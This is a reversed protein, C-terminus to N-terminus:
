CPILPQARRYTPITTHAGSPPLPFLPIPPSRRYHSYHYPRRDATTPITTHAAIRRYVLMPIAMEDDLNNDLFLVGTVQVHAHM